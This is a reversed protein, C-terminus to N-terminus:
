VCAGVGKFSHLPDTLPKFQDSSEPFGEERFNHVPLVYSTAYNNVLRKKEANWLSPFM